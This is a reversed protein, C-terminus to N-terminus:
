ATKKLPQREYIKSPGNRVKDWKYTHFVFELHVAKFVYDSM